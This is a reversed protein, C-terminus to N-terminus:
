GRLTITRCSKSENGAEDWARVCFSLPGRIRKPVKWTESWMGFRQPLNMLEGHRWRAIVKRGNLVTVENGATSVGTRPV